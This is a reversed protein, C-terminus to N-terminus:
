KIWSMGNSAQAIHKMMSYTLLLIPLAKQIKEKVVKNLLTHQM